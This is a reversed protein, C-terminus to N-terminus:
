RSVRVALTATSRLHLQHVVPWYLEQVLEQIFCDITYWAQFKFSSGLARNPWISQQDVALPSLRQTKIGPRKAASLAQDNTAFSSAPRTIAVAPFPCVQQPPAPPSSSQSQLPFTAALPELNVSHSDTDRTHPPAQRLVVSKAMITCGCTDPCLTVLCPLFADQARCALCSLAYLQFATVFPKSPPRACPQCREADRRGSHLECAM